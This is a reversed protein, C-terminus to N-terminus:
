NPNYGLIRYTERQKRLKSMARNRAIDFDAHVGTAEIDMGEVTRVQLDVTWNKGDWMDAVQMPHINEPCFQYFLEMFTPSYSEWSPPSETM